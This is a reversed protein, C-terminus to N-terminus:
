PVEQDYISRYAPPPSDARLDADLNLNLDDISLYISSDDDEREGTFQQPASPIESYASEERIHLEPQQQTSTRSSSPTLRSTLPRIESASPLLRPDRNRFLKHILHATASPEVRTLSQVQVASRDIIAPETRRRVDPSESVVIQPTGNVRNQINRPTPVPSRANRQNESQSPINSAGNRIMPMPSNRSSEVAM